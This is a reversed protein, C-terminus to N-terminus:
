FLFIIHISHMLHLIKVEIINITKIKSHFECSIYHKFYELVQSVYTLIKANPLDYPTLYHVAFEGFLGSSFSLLARSTTVSQLVFGTFIAPGSLTLATLPIFAFGPIRFKRNPCNTEKRSNACTSVIM